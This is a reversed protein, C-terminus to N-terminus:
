QSKFEPGEAQAVGGSRNKHLTKFIPEQLSNAQVPKLSHDEQDRSGSYSPNCASGSAHSQEKQGTTAGYMIIPSCQVPSM